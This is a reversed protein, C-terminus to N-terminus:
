LISDPGVNQGLEVTHVRWGGRALRVAFPRMRRSGTDLAILVNPKITKLYDLNQLYRPHGYVPVVVTYDDTSEETPVLVGRRWYALANQLDFLALLPVTLWLLSM